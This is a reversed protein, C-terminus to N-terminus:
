IKQGFDDADAYGNQHSEACHNNKDLYEAPIHKTRYELPCFLDGNVGNDPDRKQCGNEAQPVSFVGANLDEDVQEGVADAFPDFYKIIQDAESEHSQKAVMGNLQELDVASEAGGRGIDGHNKDIAANEDAPNQHDGVEAYQDVLFDLFLDKRTFYLSTLGYDAIEM